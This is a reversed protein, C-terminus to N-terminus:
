HPLRAALERGLAATDFPRVAGDRKRLAWIPDPFHPDDAFRAIVHWHLHPVRNGLSALNIKDTRLLARLAQEITYVVNMLHAREDPALDSMERVHENWVVRCYGPYESDGVDVVRCRADCWLIADARSPVCLPCTAGTM